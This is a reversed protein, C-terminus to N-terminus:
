ESILDTGQSEVRQYLYANGSKGVREVVELHHLVNLATQAGSRSLRSAKQYEKTGFQPPLAPPILKAYDDASDITIEDTLGVPIRDVRTSGKKKDASWGTLSRIEEIELMAVTLSLNPHALLDKIKYLERMIEYPSGIKPSKRKGTVEGTDPNMWLLWKTRAVPYVVRVRGVALFCALKKRLRDFARTQIEIIGNEGVIDAVYGGIKAEHSDAFPEYYYKLAAHLTKEGLRGIGTRLAESRAQECAADFRTNEM